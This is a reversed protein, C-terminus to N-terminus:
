GVPLRVHSFTARLVADSRTRSILFQVLREQFRGVQRQSTQPRSRRDAKTLSSGSPQLSDQELMERLAQRSGTIEVAYGGVCRLGRSDTRLQTYLQQSRKRWAVIADSGNHGLLCTQCTEAFQWELQLAQACSIKARQSCRRNNM